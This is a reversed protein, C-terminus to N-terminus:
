DSLILESSESDSEASSNKKPRSAEIVKESTLKDSAVESTVQKKPRGRGRKSESEKMNDDHPAEDLVKDKKPRGPRRRVDQLEVKVTNRPRGPGRKTNLEIGESSALPAKKAIQVQTKLYALDVERERLHSQWQDLNEIFNKRHANNEIVCADRPRKNFDNKSSAMAAKAIRIRGRLWVLDAEEEQIYNEYDDINEIMQHRHTRKEKFRSDFMKLIMEKKKLNLIEKLWNLKFQHNVKVM